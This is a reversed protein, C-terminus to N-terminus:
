VAGTTRLTQIDEPSYGLETLVQDTHEGFTPPPGTPGGPTDSLKIPTGLVKQRQGDREVEVVLDRAAAHESELAERPDLVPAVCVDLVRLEEFWEDRSKEAFRAEFFAHMEPGRELDHQLAIWDPKGFHECLVKWFRAEVAGISLDRGDSCRYVRYWPYLGTLMTGGPVQVQGLSWYFVAAYGMMAVIGDTMSVDVHQGRGTRERAMLALLIGLAANMGGAAVDAIQAGPIAPLTDPGNGTVSLLGGIALYNLDHGVLDRYPGTQGYGTLSAYVIRPNRECLRAYDIGLREAVGPRFGELVVDANELLRFFIEQGAESKLNLSMHRKGRTASPLSPESEYRRDEICLVDAGFDALIM